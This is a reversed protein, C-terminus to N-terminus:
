NYVACVMRAVASQIKQMQSAMLLLWGQWSLQLLLPHLSPLFGYGDFHHGYPKPVLPPLLTDM